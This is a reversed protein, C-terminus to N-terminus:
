TVRDQEAAAGRLLRLAQAVTVLECGAGRASRLAFALVDPRMGYRSPENDVDHCAFILWGNCRVTEAIVRLIGNRDITAEELPCSKLVSLDATGANVGPIDARCSDFHEGLHRKTAFSMAGYPYAFNRLTGTGLVDRLFSRNRELEDDLAAPSIRVVPVHSYTHCGIEHGRAHLAKVQDASALRGTPSPGGCKGGAIYYTARAEYQQVILAGTTCASVAADDFTFSILPTSNRMPLKKTTVNRALFRSLKGAITAYPAALFGAVGPPAFSASFDDPAPSGPTQQVRDMSM